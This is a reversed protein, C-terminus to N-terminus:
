ITNANESSSRDGSVFCRFLSILNSRIGLATRSTARMAIYLYHKMILRTITTLRVFRFSVRVVRIYLADGYPRSLFLMCNICVHIRSNRIRERERVSKDYCATCSLYFLYLGAANVNILM